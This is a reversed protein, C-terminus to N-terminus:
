KNSAVPALAVFNNTLKQQRQFDKPANGNPDEPDYQLQAMTLKGEESRIYYTSDGNVTLWHNENGGIDNVGGRLGPIILLITGDPCAKWPTDEDDVDDNETSLVPCQDSIAYSTFRQKESSNTTTLSLKYLKLNLRGDDFTLHSLSNNQVDAKTFGNDTTIADQTTFTYTSDSDGIQYTKGTFSDVTLKTSQTTTNDATNNGQTTSSNGCGTLLLTLTALICCISITSQRNM